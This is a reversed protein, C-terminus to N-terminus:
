LAPLQKPLLSEVLALFAKPGGVDEFTLKIVEVALRMQVPFPLMRVKDANQPEDCAIAIALAATDPADALLKIILSEITNDALNLKEQTGLTTFYAYAITLENLHRRVLVALDSVSIGRVKASFKGLKVTSVEPKYDDLSM